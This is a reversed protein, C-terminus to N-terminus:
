LNLEKQIGCVLSMLIQRERDSMDWKAHHGWPGNANDCIGLNGEEKHSFLIYMYVFLTDKHM